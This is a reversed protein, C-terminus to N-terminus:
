ETSEDEEDILEAAEIQLQKLEKLLQANDMHMLNQNQIILISSFDGIRM